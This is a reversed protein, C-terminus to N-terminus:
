AAPLTAQGHCPQVLGQEGKMARKQSLGTLTKPKRKIVAPSRSNVHTLWLMVWGWLRRSTLLRLNVERREQWLIRLPSTQPSNSPENGQRRVEYPGNIPCCTCDICIHM